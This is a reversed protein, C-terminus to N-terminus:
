ATTPAEGSRRGRRAGNPANADASSRRRRSPRVRLELQDPDELLLKLVDRGDVDRLVLDLALRVIQGVPLDTRGEAKAREAAERLKAHWEPSVRITLRDRGDVTVPRGGMKGAAVKVPNKDNGATV